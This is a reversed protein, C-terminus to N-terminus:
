FGVKVTMKEMKSFGFTYILHEETSFDPDLNKYIIMYEYCFPYEFESLNPDRLILSQDCLLNRGIKTDFYQPGDKQLKDLYSMYVEKIKASQEDSFRTYDHQFVGNNM